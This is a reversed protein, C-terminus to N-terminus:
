SSNNDIDNICIYYPICEKEYSINQTSSTFRSLPPIQINVLDYNNNESMSESDSNMKNM